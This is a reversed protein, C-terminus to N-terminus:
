ALLGRVTDLLTGQDFQGKVIYADAGLEMGRQRDRDTGLSTVLVFPVGRLRPSDRVAACLDLGNMRPMDVDCVVLDPVRAQLSSWGDAGDVALAVEYGATELISRLLSRTTASDDVVLVRPLAAHPADVAPPLDAVVAAPASILRGADVLLAIEGSGLIAAGVILPLDRLRRGLTLLVLDRAELAEDVLFAVERDESTIIVAVAAGKWAHSPLGLAAALDHIPLPRGGSSDLLTLQGELSRLDEPRVLLARRVDRSPLAFTCGGAHVLVSHETALSIPVQLIFRTGQGATWEVRVRGLMAEITTRVADLGVGRGSVKSVVATTSFGASFLLRGLGARDLPTPLGQAAVRSLVAREDIGRGDDGVAVEIRDGLLSASVVITATAPKGLREREEPSEVGHDVANRVLHRIPDRLRALVARDVEVDQGTVQVHVRKGAAHALDRVMRDLGACALAFPQLRLTRLRGDLASAVREHGRIAEAVRAVRDGVLTDLATLREEVGQAIEAAADSRGTREARTVKRWSSIFGELDGLAAAAVTLREHAVVAEGSLAVLGDLIDTRVQVTTETGGAPDQASSPQSPTEAHPSQALVPASIRPRAAHLTLTEPNAGARLRRGADALVDTAVILAEILPADLLGADVRAVALRAELDHCFSELGRAGVAHSAGKLSHVSRFVSAALESRLAADTTRELALLDGELAIVREDLEDVFVELLAPDIERTTSM